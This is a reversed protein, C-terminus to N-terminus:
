PKPPPTVDLPLSIRVLGGQGSKPALVELKGRHNEIIKRSVALGLGL